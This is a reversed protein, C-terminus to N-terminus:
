ETIIKNQYFYSTSGGIENSNTLKIVVLEVFYLVVLSCKVDLYLLLHISYSRSVLLIM